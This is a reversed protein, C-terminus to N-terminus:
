NTQPDPETQIIKGFRPVFMPVRRRYERYQEGFYAILDREELVAAGAMYVTLVLAFMLHGVTMTPTAWFALAWGIYLPHRVYKYFLPVRFELPKYEQGRLYLWVQRTGFLDFHNILISVLPVLLWGATFLGWMLLRLQPTHVDWVILTIGQWQWMLIITVLCSALVYTSREIPKPVIRTWLQKFAPRAMVSHQVAFLSLLLLNIGIATTLPRNSPTDITKSVIVGGVFGAMYAYTTLFLLHCSVGYIFFLWRKM